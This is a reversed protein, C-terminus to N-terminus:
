RADGDDAMVGNGDISILLIGFWAAWFLGPKLLNDM